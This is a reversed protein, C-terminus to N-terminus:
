GRGHEAAPPAGHELRAAADTIRRILAAMAEGANRVPLVFAPDDPALPAAAGRTPEDVMLDGGRREVGREFREVADLADVLHDSTEDGTLRVGRRALRAAVELSASELAADGSAVAGIRGGSPSSTSVDGQRDGLTVWTSSGTLNRDTAADGGIGDQEAAERRLEAQLAAASDPADTNREHAHQTM